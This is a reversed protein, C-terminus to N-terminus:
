NLSRHIQGNPFCPAAIARCSYGSDIKDHICSVRRTKSRGWNAYSRGYKATVKEAWYKIAKETASQRTTAWGKEVVRGKCIRSNMQPREFAMDQKADVHSIQLSCCASIIAAKTVISFTM